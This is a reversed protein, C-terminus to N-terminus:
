VECITMRATYFLYKKEQYEQNKKGSSKNQCGLTDQANTVNITKTLKYLFNEYTDVYHLYKKSLYLKEIMEYFNELNGLTKTFELLNLNNEYCWSLFYSYNSLLISTIIYYAFVNSQEKYLLKRTLEMKNDAAYLHDYTLGMCHLVKVMQFVSFNAEFQLCYETTLIFEEKRDKVGKKM